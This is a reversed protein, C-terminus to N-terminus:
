IMDWLFIRVFHITSDGMFTFTSSLGVFFDLQIGIINQNLDENSTSFGSNTSTKGFPFCM